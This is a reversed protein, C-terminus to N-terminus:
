TIKFPVQATTQITDQGGATDVSRDKPDHFMQWVISSNGVNGENTHSLTGLVSLILEEGKILTTGTIDGSVSLTLYEDSNSSTISPTVVTQDESLLDTDGLGTRKILKITYVCTVVSADPDQNLLRTPINIIAKGEIQVTREFKTKFEVTNADDTQSTTSSLDKSYFVNESLINEDVTDGAQFILLGRGTAFETSSFNPISQSATTFKQLKPNLPM